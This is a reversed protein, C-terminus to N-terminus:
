APPALTWSVTQAVSQAEWGTTLLPLRTVFTCTTPAGPTLQGASLENADAFSSLTMPTGVIPSLGTCAVTITMKDCLSGTGDDCASADIDLVGNSNGTNEVQVVTTSSSGPALETQEVGGAGFLNIDCTSANDASEDSACTTDVGSADPGTVQLVRTTSRTAATNDDHDLVASSWDGLTGSVGLSLLVAALASSLWVVWLRGEGSESPHRPTPAYRM